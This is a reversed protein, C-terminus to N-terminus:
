AYFRDCKTDEHIHYCELGCTRAGCKLCKIRGWYGCISCFHRAPPAGSSPLVARAENYTLPPESLLQMMVEETPPAPTDAQLLDHAGPPRQPLAQSAPDVASYACATPLGTVPPPPALPNGPRAATRAASTALPAAQTQALSAEEDDLYNKFTKQSMLIRRVNTTTKSRSSKAHLEKGKTTAIPIHVDRHNERDLEALRRLTANHQRASLSGRGPGAHAATSDRLTRNGKRTGRLSAHAAAAPAPAAAPRSTDPVYAWGPTIQSATNAALLEVKHSM